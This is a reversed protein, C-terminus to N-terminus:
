SSERRLRLAMRDLFSDPDLDTTPQTARQRIADVLLAGVADALDAPDRELMDPLFEQHRGALVEVWELFWFAQSIAQQRAHLQDHLPQLPSSPRWM